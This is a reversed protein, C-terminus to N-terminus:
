VVRRKLKIIVCDIRLKYRTHLNCFRYDCVSQECLFGRIIGVLLSNSNISRFCLAGNLLGVLNM